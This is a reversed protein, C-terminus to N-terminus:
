IEALLACLNKRLVELQKSKFATKTKELETITYSLIEKLRLRCPCGYPACNRDGSHLSDMETLEFLERLIQANYSLDDSIQRIVGQLSHMQEYTSRTNAMLKKPTVTKKEIEKARFHADNRRVSGPSAQGL